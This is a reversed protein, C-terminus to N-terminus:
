SAVSNGYKVCLCRRLLRMSYTQKSTRQLPVVVMHMKAVCSRQCPRRTSHQAAKDSHASQRQQSRSGRKRLLRLATARM